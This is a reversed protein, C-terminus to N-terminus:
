KLTLNDFVVSLVYEELLIQGSSGEYVKPDELEITKVMDEINDRLFNDLKAQTLILNNESAIEQFIGQEYLDNAIQFIRKKTEYFTNTRWSTIYDDFVTAIYEEMDVLGCSDGGEMEEVMAKANERLFEELKLKGREFLYMNHKTVVKYLMKYYLDRALEIFENIMDQSKEPWEKVIGMIEGNIQVMDLDQDKEMLYDIMNRIIPKNYNLFWDLNELTFKCGMEEKFKDSVLDIVRYKVERAKNKTMVINESTDTNMLVQKLM